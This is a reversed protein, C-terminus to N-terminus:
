IENSMITHLGYRTAIPNWQQTLQARDAAADDGSRDLHLAQVGACGQNQYAHELTTPGLDAQSYSANLVRRIDGYVDNWEGSGFLDTHRQRISDSDELQQQYQSRVNLFATEVQDVTPDTHYGDTPEQTCDGLTRLAAVLTARTGVMRDILSSVDLAVTLQEPAATAAAPPTAGASRYRDHLWYATIALVLALAVLAAIVEAPRSPARRLWEDPSAPSTDGSSPPKGAAPSSTAPRGAAPRATPPTAPPNVPLGASRDYAARASPDLLVDRCLNLLAAQADNGGSADPHYRRVLRRYAAVIADDDATPPVGLFQYPDVGNLNRALRSL